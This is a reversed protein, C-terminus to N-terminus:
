AHSKMWLSYRCLLDFGLCHQSVEHVGRLPGTKIEVWIANCFPFLDFSSAGVAQISLKMAHPCEAQKRCGRSQQNVLFQSQFQCVKLAELSAVLLKEQQSSSQLVYSQLAGSPTTAVGEPTSEVRRVLEEGLMRKEGVAEIWIANGWLGSQIGVFFDINGSL